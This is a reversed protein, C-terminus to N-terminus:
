SIPLFLGAEVHPLGDAPNGEGKVAKIDMSADEVQEQIWLMGVRVHRMKGNGRRSATGIAASSDTFVQGKVDWGWDGALQCLGILETAMKVAAVLEAEGSSLTVSKQTASWSKLLHGGAMIVGGSTSRATRKCGAWDSDSYGQYEGHRSQWAFESVLRPKGKLYRQLRKLRRRDGVTPASM